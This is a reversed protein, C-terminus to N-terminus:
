DHDLTLLHQFFVLICNKQCVQKLIWCYNILCLQMLCHLIVADVSITLMQSLLHSLVKLWATFSLVIFETWKKWKIGSTKYTSLLSFSYLPNIKFPLSLLINRVSKLKFWVQQTWSDLIQRGGDLWWLMHRWRMQSNLAGISVRLM